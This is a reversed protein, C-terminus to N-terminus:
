PQRRIVRRMWATDSPLALVPTNSRCLVEYSISGQRPGFLGQGPRRTMVVLGVRRESAISAIVQAPKGAEVRVGGVNWRLDDQLRTLRAAARRQRQQNRRAEDLDLWPVDAIPEVVHVLEVKIGLESAAVAAALADARDRPGFDIPAIAMTGPWNRLAPAARGKVPPTALVPLRSRRLTRHTTSGIMLKNAGTWGHAGMVILDCKLNEATWEIVQHPKGVAVDLTVSSMPLKFPKVAREVLRRLEQRGKEILTKEDYAVAAAAALLPDEAFVVVLRADARAAILAAYSLARRSHVSFDVPCLITRFLAPEAITLRSTHRVANTKFADCIM